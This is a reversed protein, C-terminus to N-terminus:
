PSSPEGRRDGPTPGSPRAGAADAGDPRDVVVPRSLLAAVCPLQMGDHGPRLRRLPRRVETWRPAGPRSAPRRHRSRSRALDLSRSGTSTRGPASSAEEVFGFLTPQARAARGPEDGSTRAHRAAPRAPPGVPHARRPRELGARAHGGPKLVRAIEPLAARPRVLPLGARVVVVDVSATPRRSDGGAAVVSARRRAHRPAAGGADGRRPRHRLVDHGAGVLVRTLKGTGAGLELVTRARRGVLWTSPRAPYAPRGRDYAGRRDGFSLARPADSM